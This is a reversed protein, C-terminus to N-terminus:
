VDRAHSFANAVRRVFRMRGLFRPAKYYLSEPVNLKIMRNKLFPSFHV